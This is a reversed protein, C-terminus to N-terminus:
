ATPEKAQSLKSSIFSIFPIIENIIDEIMVDQRKSVLWNPLKFPYKYFRKTWQKEVGFAVAYPLYKEYIAQCDYSFGYAAELLLFNRFQAWKETDILGQSTKTPLKPSIRIIFMSGVIIFFWFLLMYPISLFMYLTVMFGLIGLFFIMYGVRKYSSQFEVPNKMFYGKKFLLDYIDLYVEAVKRSFVHRSISVEIDEYTSKKQDDSFIKALLKAEFTRLDTFTSPTKYFTFYEGNDVILLKGRRALDILTAAISRPTIKNNILVSAEAPSLDDPVYESVRKTQRIVWDNSTRHYLYFLIILTIVLPISSILLWSTLGLKNLGEVLQVNWPLEVMGKPLELEITFTSNPSLDYAYFVITHDDNITYGTDGVGHVAYIRPNLQKFDVKEPLTVPLYLADIYVGEQSFAVYKFLDYDRQPNVVNKEVKNGVMVKGNKNLVIPLEYNGRSADLDVVDSISAQMYQSSVFNYVGYAITFLVVFFLLKRVNLNVSLDM